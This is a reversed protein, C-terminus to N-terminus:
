LKKFIEKREKERLKWKMEGEVKKDRTQQARGGERKWKNDTKIGRRKKM